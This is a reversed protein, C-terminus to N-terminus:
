FVSAATKGPREKLENLVAQAVGEAAREMLETSPIKWEEIAARDLEKMQATTAILM